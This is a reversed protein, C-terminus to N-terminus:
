PPAAPTQVIQQFIGAPRNQAADIRATEHQVDTFFARLLRPQMRVSRLKGHLLGDRLRTCPASQVSQVARRLDGDRLRVIPRFFASQMDDDDVAAHFVIDQPLQRRVTEAHRDHWAPRRRLRNEVQPRVAHQEGVPRAIRVADDADDIAHFLKEAFNRDHADAQAM